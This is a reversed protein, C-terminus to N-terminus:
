VSPIRPNVKHLWRCQTRGILNGFPHPLMSVRQSRPKPKSIEGNELSIINGYVADVQMSVKGITLRGDIEAGDVKVQPLNQGSQHPNTKM